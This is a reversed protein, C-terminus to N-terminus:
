CHAIDHGSKKYKKNRHMQLFYRQQIEFVDGLLFERQAGADVAQHAVVARAFGVDHVGNVVERHALRRQGIVSPCLM